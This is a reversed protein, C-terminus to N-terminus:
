MVIAGFSATAKSSSCDTDQARIDGGDSSVGGKNLNPLCSQCM